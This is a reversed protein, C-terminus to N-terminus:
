SSFGSTELVTTGNFGSTITYATNMPLYNPIEFIMRNIKPSKNRYIVSASNNVTGTWYAGRNTYSGEFYDSSGYGEEIQAADFNIVAGTGVGSVTAKLYIVDSSDYVFV